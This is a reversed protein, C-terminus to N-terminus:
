NRATVKRTQWDRAIADFLDCTEACPDRRARTATQGFEMVTRNETDYAPWAPAGPGNPDGTTAFHVWAAGMQDSLERDRDAIQLDGFGEVSRPVLTGFVFALESAHFAGWREGASGPRTRTFDYVYARAGARTVERALRRAPATFGAVTLSDATARRAEEDTSAPFRAVVQTAHRPYAFAVLFRYGPLTSGGIAEAFVSGENGNAGVIVPVRAFDGREMLLAPEDPVTVGDVIPYFPNGAAAFPMQPQAAALLAAPSLSRLVSIADAEDARAATAV